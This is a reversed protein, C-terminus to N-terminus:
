YFRLLYYCLASAAIQITLNDMSHFSTAEVLMTLISLCLTTIFVAEIPYDFGLLLFLFCGGWSALLVAISGEISRHAPIGTLSYVRYPHKGWRTGVPEGVADSWGTAIYGIIAFERFFINSIMGGLATMCFPMIIYFKQHPADTPRALTNFLRSNNGRYVAYGVILGISVGFVQVAPFGGTLAIIGAETFILFHFIKRSYGVQLNYRDKIRCTFWGSLIGLVIGLPFYNTWFNISPFEWYHSLNEIM